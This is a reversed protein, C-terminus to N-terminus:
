NGTVAPNSAFRKQLDPPLQGFTIKTIGETHNVTIGETDVKLLECKQFTRGDVTAITGLSNPDSAASLQTISATTTPTPPPTTAKALAAQTANLKVQVGQLKDTLDSIKALSNNEASASQKAQDALKKNQSQLDTIEQQKGDLADKQVRQMDNYEYYAGGCLGIIVLLLVYNM